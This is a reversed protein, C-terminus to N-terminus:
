EVEAEPVVVWAGSEEDWTYAVGGDGEVQIADAPVPVPAEWTFSDTLVWSDFPKPPIFADLTEDYTYGVGAYNGRFPEGDGTHQGAITNYSTRKCVQGMRMGYYTEWDTVGEALDDENRGVIVQTVINNNDLFAYHAM